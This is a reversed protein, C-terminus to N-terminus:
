KKNCYRHSKKKQMIEKVKKGQEPTLVERVDKIMQFKAIKMDGKNSMMQRIKKTIRDMGISDDQHFENLDLALVEIEARLDINEKNYALKIEKIKEVQKKSLGLEESYKIIHFGHKGSKWGKKDCGKRKKKDCDKSDPKNCKEKGEPPQAGVNLTFLAIAALTIISFLLLSRKKMKQEEIKKILNLILIEMRQNPCLKSM